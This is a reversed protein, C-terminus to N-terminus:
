RPMYILPNFDKNKSGRSSGFEFAYADKLCAGFIGAITSIIGVAEGALHGQYFGLCSLCGVLGVAAAFVMVDARTNTYGSKILAADRTRAQMRDQIFSRELDHELKAISHQFQLLLGTDKQLLSVADEARSAGTVKKAVDVIQSALMRNSTAGKESVFWKAISPVMEALVLAAQNFPTM